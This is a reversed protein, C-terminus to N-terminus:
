EEGLEKLTELRYNMEDKAFEVVREFFPEYSKDCALKELIDHSYPVETGEIKINEWNKLIFKWQKSSIINAEEDTMGGNKMKSSYKKNVDRLYQAHDRNLWEAIYLTADGFNVKVGDVSADVDKRLSSIDM